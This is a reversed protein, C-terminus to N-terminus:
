ENDLIMSSLQSGNNTIAKCKMNPKFFTSSNGNFTLNGCVIKAADETSVDFKIFYLPTDDNRKILIQGVISQIYYLIIYIRLIVKRQITVPSGCYHLYFIHFPSYYSTQRVSKNVKKDSKKKNFLLLFDKSIIRSLNSM